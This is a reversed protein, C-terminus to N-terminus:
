REELMHKLDAVAEDATSGRGITLHIPRDRSLTCTWSALPATSPRYDLEVGVAHDVDRVLAILDEATVTM